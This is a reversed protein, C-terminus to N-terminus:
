DGTATDDDSRLPRLPSQGKVGSREKSSLLLSSSASFETKPLSSPCISGWGTVYFLGISHNKLNWQGFRLKPSNFTKSHDLFVKEM